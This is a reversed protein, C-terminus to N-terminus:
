DEPNCAFLRKRIQRYIDMHFKSGICSFGLRDSLPKTIPHSIAGTQLKGM